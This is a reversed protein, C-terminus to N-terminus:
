DPRSSARNMATALEIDRRTIGGSDHTTLTVDVRSYVNFWEPHHDLKEAMLACETMFAFAQRFNAFRFSRTIAAEDERLAWDPLKALAQTLEETSLKADRM